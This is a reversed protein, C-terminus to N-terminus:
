AQREALMADAAAEARAKLMADMHLDGYRMILAAMAFASFFERKTLGSCSNGVEPFAPGSSDPKSM